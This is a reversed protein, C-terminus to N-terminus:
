SPTPPKTYAQKTNAAPGGVGGMKAEGPSIIGLCNPGIIRAGRLNALEVMQAVEKRPINETVIVIIEIGNELAEFVADRTFGPPVSVISGQIPGHREVADRVCDYVPVGYIDRGARGPTVGGVIRAGYDLNERTLNVAERGTIGQVIFSTESSILITV